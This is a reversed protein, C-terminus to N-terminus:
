NKKIAALLEKLNNGQYLTLQNTFLRDEKEAKQGFYIPLSGSFNKMHAM